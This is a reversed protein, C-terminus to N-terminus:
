RPAPHGSRLSRSSSFTDNWDPSLRTPFEERAPPRRHTAQRPGDWATKSREEEWRAKEKPHVDDGMLAEEPPDDHSIAMLLAGFCFAGILMAVLAIYTDRAGRHGHSGSASRRRKRVRVVALFHPTSGQLSQSSTSSPWIATGCRSSAGSRCGSPPRTARSGSSSRMASTPRVASTTPPPTAESTFLPARARSRLGIPM